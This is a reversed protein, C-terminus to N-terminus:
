FRTRAHTRSRLVLPTTEEAVLAGISQALSNSWAKIFNLQDPANRHTNSSRSTSERTVTSDRSRNFLGLDPDTSDRTVADDVEDQVKQTFAKSAKKARRQKNESRAWARLGQVNGVVPCDKITGTSDNRGSGDAEWHNLAKARKPLKVRERDALHCCQCCSLLKNYCRPDKWTVFPATDDGLVLM